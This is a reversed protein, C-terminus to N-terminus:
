GRYYWSWLLSFNIKERNFIDLHENKNLFLFMALWYRNVKLSIIHHRWRSPFIALVPIQFSFFSVKLRAESSVLQIMQYISLRLMITSLFLILLLHLTQAQCMPWDLWCNLAGLFYKLFPVWQVRHQETSSRNLTVTENFGTSWLPSSPFNQTLIIAMKKFLAFILVPFFFDTLTCHSYSYSPFSHLSAFYVM